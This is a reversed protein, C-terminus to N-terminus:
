ARTPAKGSPHRGRGRVETTIGHAQSTPQHSRSASPEGAGVGQEGHRCGKAACGRRCARSAGTLGRPPCGRRMLPERGSGRGRGARGVGAGARRVHGEVGGRRGRPGQPHSGSAAGGHAPRALARPAAVEGPRARRVGCGARRGKLRKIVRWRARTPTLRARHRPRRDEDASRPVRVGRWVTREGAGHRRWRPRWTPVDRRAPKARRHRRHVARSAADVVRPEGGSAVLGRPLWVGERGAAAGSVVRTDHPCGCRPQARASEESLGHLAGAPLRRERPRPAAATTSGRKWTTVGLECALVLTPQPTPAQDMRPAAPPAM